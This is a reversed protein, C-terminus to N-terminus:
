NNNCNGSVWAPNEYNPVVNNPCAAWNFNNEELCKDQAACWQETNSPNDM